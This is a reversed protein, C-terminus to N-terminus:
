GWGEPLHCNDPAGKFFIKIDDESYGALGCGIKTVEFELDPNGIAYTIFNVIHESITYIDLINLDEDKTPIAYANGTRGSGEGQVADYSHKAHLAAGKGHRGALNSGFVFIRNEKKM